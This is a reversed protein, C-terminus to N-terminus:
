GGVAPVTLWFLGVLLSAVLFLSLHIGILGCHALLVLGRGWLLVLRGHGALGPLAEVRVESGHEGRRGRGRGHGGRPDGEQLEKAELGDGLLSGAGRSGWGWFLGPRSTFATEGVRRCPLGGIGMRLGRHTAGMGTAIGTAGRMDGLQSLDNAGPEKVEGRHQGSGGGDEETAQHGKQQEGGDGAEEELCPQVQHHGGGEQAQGQGGQQGAMEEVGEDGGQVGEAGQHQQQGAEVAEVDAPQGQNVPVGPPDSECSKSIVLAAM